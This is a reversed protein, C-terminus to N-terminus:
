ARKIFAIALKIKDYSVGEKLGFYISKTSDTKKLRYWTSMVQQIEDESIFKKLNIIEGKEYLYIAHGYITTSSLSREKAIEDPTLNEKILKLTELHTEGSVTVTKEQVFKQIVALFEKGYQQMKYSGVGSVELLDKEFLPKASCMEKLTNDNFIAYAPIQATQALAM